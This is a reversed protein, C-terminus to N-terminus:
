LVVFRDGEAQTVGEKYQPGGYSGTSSPSTGSAAQMMMLPATVARVNPRTVTTSVCDTVIASIIHSLFPSLHSTSFSLLSLRNSPSPLFSFYHSPPFASLPLSLFFTYLLLCLSISPNYYLTTILFLHYISSTNFRV